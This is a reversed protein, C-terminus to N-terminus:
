SGARPTRPSSTSPSRPPPPTRGRGQEDAPVRSPRVLLGTRGAGGSVTSGWRGQDMTGTRPRRRVPSPSRRDTPWDCFGIVNGRRHPHDQSTHGPLPVRRGRRASACAAPGGLEAPSATVRRSPRPSTRPRGGLRQPALPAVKRRGRRSLAACSRPHGAGLARDRRPDGAATGGHSAGARPRPGRGSRATGIARALQAVARLADRASATGSGPAVGGGPQPTADLVLQEVLGQLAVTGV